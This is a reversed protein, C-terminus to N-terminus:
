TDIKEFHKNQSALTWANLVKNYNINLWHQVIKLQRSPIQGALIEEELSVSARYEGYFIHVHPIKHQVTDNFMLYIIIDGIRKLEPM